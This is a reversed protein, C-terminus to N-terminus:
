NLEKEAVGEVAYYLAKSVFSIHERCIRNASETPLKKAVHKRVKEGVVKIRIRPGRFFTKIGRREKGKCKGKMWM